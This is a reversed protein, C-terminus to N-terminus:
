EMRLNRLLMIGVGRAFIATPLDKGWFLADVMFLVLLSRRKLEAMVHASESLPTRASFLM